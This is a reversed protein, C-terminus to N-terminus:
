SKPLKKYDPLKREPDFLDFIQEVADPYFDCPVFISRLWDSRPHYFSLEAAHLELRDSFALAAGDSYFEDGVIPHGLSLMHVRLQHSRGTVPLLRVITTQDERKMVEYRTLSPKGDEFCVKQKPRNPWDCILPLNIEGSDQEVCGWVRAYYIKHTLRYQFQKKLAAEVHKNKAFLMLGSTSMDLRHVVQIEPYEKVLRSWMSDYHEALRGPVSLLGSPKNVALIHDDEFVIDIWPDTPPLYELMAMMLRWFIRQM